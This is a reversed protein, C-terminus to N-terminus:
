GLNFYVSFGLTFTKLKKSAESASTSLYVWSRGIHLEDMHQHKNWVYVAQQNKMLKSWGESAIVM